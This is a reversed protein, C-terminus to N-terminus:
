YLDFRAWHILVASSDFKTEQSRALLDLQNSIYNLVAPALLDESVTEMSMSMSMLSQHGHDAVVFEVLSHTLLSM